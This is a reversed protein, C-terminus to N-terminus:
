ELPSCILQVSDLYAAAGGRLGTVVYGKPCKLTFPQGGQGGASNSFRKSGGIKVKSGGGGKLLKELDAATVDGVADATKAKEAEYAFGAVDVYTEGEKTLTAGAPQATTPKGTAAASTTGTPTAASTKVNRDFRERVIEPGKTVSIGLYATGLNLSKPIPRVSGLEVAYDGDDIAVFHSESWVPTTSKSTRYFNFTLPFIGALGQGGANQLRGQYTPAPGAASASATALCLVSCTVALTLRSLIM